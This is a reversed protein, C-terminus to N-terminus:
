PGTAPRIGEARRVLGPLFPPILLTTIIAMGVVVSYTSSQIAGLQLGLGAVVIGVEGRPVMGAAILVARERGLRIAGLLAGTFKTAIAVAVVFVLTGLVAWRRPGDLDIQAGISGFFFPTFFAAVPAVEEELAHKESSEGVVM